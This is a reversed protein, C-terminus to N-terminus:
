SPRHLQSLSPMTYVHGTRLGHFYCQGLRNYGPSGAACTGRGAGVSKRLFPFLAKAFFPCQRNTVGQSRFGLFCHALPPSLGRRTSITPASNSAAILRFSKCTSRGSSAKKDECAKGCPYGCKKRMKRMNVFSLPPVVIDRIRFLPQRQLDHLDGRYSAQWHAWFPSNLTSAQRIRQRARLNGVCSRRRDLGVQRFHLDITLFEDRM